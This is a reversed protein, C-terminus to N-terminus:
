SKIKKIYTNSRRKGFVLRLLMELHNRDWLKLSPGCLIISLSFLLYSVEIYKVIVLEINDKNIEDLDFFYDLTNSKSEQTLSHSLGSLNKYIRELKGNIEKGNQKFDEKFENDIIKELTTKNM